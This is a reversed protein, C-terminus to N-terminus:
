LYLRVTRLGIMTVTRVLSRCGFFLNACVYIMIEVSVYKEHGVVNHVNADM